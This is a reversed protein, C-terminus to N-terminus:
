TQWMKNRCNQSMNRKSSFEVDYLCMKQKFTCLIFKGEEDM